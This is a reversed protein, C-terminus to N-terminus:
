RSWIEDSVRIEYIYGLKDYIIEYKLVLFRGDGFNNKEEIVSLWNKLENTNSYTIGDYVIRVKRGFKNNKILYNVM